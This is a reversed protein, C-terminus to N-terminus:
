CEPRPSLIDRKRKLHLNGTLFGGSPVLSSGLSCARSRSFQGLHKTWEASNYAQGTTCMGRAGVLVELRAAGGRRQRAVLGFARWKAFM